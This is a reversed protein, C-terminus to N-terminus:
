LYFALWAPKFYCSYIFSFISVKPSNYRNTTCYAKAFCHQKNLALNTICKPLNEGFSESTFTGFMQSSWQNDNISLHHSQIQAPTVTFWEEPTFSFRPASVHQKLRTSNILFHNLCMNTLEVYVKEDLLKEGCFSVSSEKHTEFLLATLKTLFVVDPKQGHLCSTMLLPVTCWSILKSCALRESRLMRQVSCPVVLRDLDFCLTDSMWINELCIGWPNTNRGVTGRCRRRGTWWWWWGWCFMGM